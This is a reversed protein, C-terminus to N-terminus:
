ERGPLLSLTGEADRSDALYCLYTGMTESPQLTHRDCGTIRADHEPEAEIEAEVADAVAGAVLDFILARPEWHQEAIDVCAEYICWGGQDLIRQAADM